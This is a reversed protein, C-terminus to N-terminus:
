YGNGMTTNLNVSGTSTVPLTPGTTIIGGGLTNIVGNVLNQLTNGSLDTGYITPVPSSNFGYGLGDFLPISAPNVSNPAMLGNTMHKLGDNTGPGLIPNQTPNSKNSSTLGSMGADEPAAGTAYSSNAQTGAAGLSGGLASNGSTDATAYTDVNSVPATPMNLVATPGSPSFTVTASVGNDAQAPASPLVIGMAAAVILGGLRGRSFWFTIKKMDM